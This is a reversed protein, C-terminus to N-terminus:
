RWAWMRITPALRRIGPVLGVTSVTVHSAGLRMGAPDLLRTISDSTGRYNAMPEGMGM